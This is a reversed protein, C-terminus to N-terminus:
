ARPVYLTKWIVGHRTIGRCLEQITVMLLSLLSSSSQWKGPRKGVDTLFSTTKRKDGSLQWASELSSPDRIIM